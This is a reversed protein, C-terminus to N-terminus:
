FFTMVTFFILIPCLYCVKIQGSMLLLRTEAKLTNLNDFQGLIRPRHCEDIIIAEWQIFRLAHLDQMDCLFMVLVFLIDINCQFMKYFILPFFSM